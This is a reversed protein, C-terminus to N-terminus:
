TAYWQGSPLSSFRDQDLLILTPRDRDFAASLDIQLEHLNSPRQSACEYAEAIQGFDPGSIRASSTAIGRGALSNEIEEYGRNLWIIIPIGIQNDVATALEPLTFQAGGDGILAAVPRDTALRAGLAAPIAYGLTGFGSVSHFYSRPQECEYQWSAYYTPRTSDGVLVLEPAARRIANFLEAIEAHYHPEQLIQRRVKQARRGADRSQRGPADLLGDVALAADACLTVDAAVNRELQDPDIDIRLLKGRIRFPEDMLLDYDTEGFETGIALVVDAESVLERVSSLSPSGGVFLSHSEPCAGKANVTNVIPMDFHEALVPIRRAAGLAGGGVICVPADAARLISAMQELCAHDINPPPSTAGPTQEPAQMSLLDLPMEIHIPGPREREFAQFAQQITRAIDHPDTITISAKCFGAATARQDPLEHLNGRLQGLDGTAAVATVVLMPISDARAQAIATAANLLGPGSILFCVGPRGSARAYGDAMFAAGQEHRTTVHHIASGELGRYLELTHNGPIGFVHTVGHAELYQVVAQGCTPKPGRTPM